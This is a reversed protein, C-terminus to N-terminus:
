GEEASDQGIRQILGPDHTAGLGVNHPFITAGVIKAHGHVADIGFLIPIPPHDVSTAALSARYFDDTLDLWAQPSTRVSDGPAANGGALISGLKYTRLDAPSISAIDAQIMQGIKDELSMYALLQQVFAETAPDAAAPEAAPWLEPHVSMSPTPAPWAAASVFLMLAAASFAPCSSVFSEKVGGKDLGQSTSGGAGLLVGGTRLSLRM